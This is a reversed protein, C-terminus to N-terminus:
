FSVYKMRSWSIVGFVRGKISWEDVGGLDRSDMSNDINDGLLFYEGPDVNFREGGIEFKEGPLGMVRKIVRHGDRTESVVVDGRKPARVRYSIRSVLAFDGSIISPSMSDGSVVFGEIVFLRM